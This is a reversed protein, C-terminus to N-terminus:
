LSIGSSISPSSLRSLSGFLYRIAPSGIYNFRATQVVGDQTRAIEALAIFIIKYEGKLALRRPPIRCRYWRKYLKSDLKNGIIYQVEALTDSDRM